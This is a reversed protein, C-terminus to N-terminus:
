EPHTKYVEMVDRAMPWGEAAKEADRRWDGVSEGGCALWYANCAYQYPVSHPEARGHVLKWAEMVVAACVERPVKPPPGPRAEFVELQAAKAVHRRVLPLVDLATQIHQPCQWGLPLNKFRPLYRLLVDSARVIQDLVDKTQVLDQRTADMSSGIFERFFELGEVLWEPAPDCARANGVMGAQKASLQGTSRNVIAQAVDAITSM